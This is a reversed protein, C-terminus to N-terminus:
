AHIQRNVSRVTDLESRLIDLPDIVCVPAAPNIWTFGVGGTEATGAIAIGCNTDATNGREFIQKEDRRIDRRIRETGTARIRLCQYHSRIILIHHVSRYNGVLCDIRRQLHSAVDAEEVVVNAIVARETRQVQDAIYCHRGGAARAVFIKLKVAIACNIKDAVVLATRAGGIKYTTAFIQCEGTGVQDSPHMYVIVATDIDRTVCLYVILPIQCDCTVGAAARKVAGTCQM